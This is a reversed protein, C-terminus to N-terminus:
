EAAFLALANWTREVSEVQELVPRLAMWLEDIAAKDVTATRAAQEASARAVDAM